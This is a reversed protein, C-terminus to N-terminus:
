FRLVPLDFVFYHRQDGFGHFVTHKDTARIHCAKFFLKGLKTVGLVADADIGAGIGQAKDQHGGAQSRTILDYRHGVGKDGGGFGDGLDTGGGHKDVYVLM